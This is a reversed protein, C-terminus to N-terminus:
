RENGLRREKRARIATVRETGAPPAAVPKISGFTRNCFRRSGIRPLNQQQLSRLRRDGCTMLIQAIAIQKDPSPFTSTRITRLPDPERLVGVVLHHEGIAFIRVRTLGQSALRRLDL